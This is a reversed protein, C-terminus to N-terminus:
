AGQHNGVPSESHSSLFCMRWKGRSLMDRLLSDPRTQFPALQLGLGKWFFLLGKEHPPKDTRLGQEVRCSTKKRLNTSINFCPSGAFPLTTLLPYPLFGSCFLILSGLEFGM